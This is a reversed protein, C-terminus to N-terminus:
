GLNFRAKDVAYNAAIEAATLARSYLRICHFGGLCATTYNTSNNRMGIQVGNNLNWNGSSSQLSLPIGNKYAANRAWTMAITCRAVLFDLDGSDHQYLTDATRIGSLRWGMCARSNSTAVICRGQGNDQESSFDICAEITDPSILTANSAFMGRDNRWLADSDWYAGTSCLLDVDGCLDKWVTANPDHTGWGANEIGDWMAILGDQVYSKASLPEDGGGAAIEKRTSLMSKVVAAPAKGAAIIGALGLGSYIIDRRTQM